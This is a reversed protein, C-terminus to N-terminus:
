ATKAASAEDAVSEVLRSFEAQAETALKFFDNSRNTQKAVFDAALGSQQSVLGAPDKANTLVNLHAIGYELVDGAVAYGHRVIREYSRLSAESFRAFPAFASKQLDIFTNFENTAQAVTKVEQSDRRAVHSAM